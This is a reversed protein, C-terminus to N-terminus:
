ISIFDPEACKPFYKLVKPGNEEDIFHPSIQIHKKLSNHLSLYVTHCLCRPFRRAGLIDM